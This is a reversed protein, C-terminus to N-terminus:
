GLGSVLMSSSPQFIWSVLIQLAKMCTICTKNCSWQNWMPPGLHCRRGKGALSTSHLRCPQFRPEKSDMAPSSSPVKLPWMRPICDRASVSQKKSFSGSPICVHVSRSRLKWWNQMGFLKMHLLLPKKPCDHKVTEVLGHLAWLNTVSTSVVDSLMRATYWYWHRCINAM